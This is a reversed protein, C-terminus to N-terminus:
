VLSIPLGRYWVANVVFSVKQMVIVAPLVPFGVQPLALVKLFSPMYRGCYPTGWQVLLACQAGYWFQRTYRMVKIAKNYEFQM